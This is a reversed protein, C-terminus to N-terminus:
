KHGAYSANFPRWFFFFFNQNLSKQGLRNQILVKYLTLSSIRLKKNQCFHFEKSKFMFPSLSHPILIYM